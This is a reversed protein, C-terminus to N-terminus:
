VSTQQYNNLYNTYMYKIKNVKITYPTIKIRITSKNLSKNNLKMISTIIQNSFNQISTLRMKLIITRLYKPNRIWEWESLHLINSPWAKWVSSCNLVTTTTNSFSSKWVSSSSCMLNSYIIFWFYRRVMISFSRRVIRCFKEVWIIVRNTLANTELKILFLVAIFRLM